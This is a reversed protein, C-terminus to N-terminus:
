LLAIVLLSWSARDNQLACPRENKLSRYGARLWPLNLATREREQSYLCHYCHCMSITTSSSYVSRPLESGDSPARHKVAREAKSGLVNINRAVRTKFTLSANTCSSKVISLRALPHDKRAAARRPGHLKNALGVRVPSVWGCMLGGDATASKARV